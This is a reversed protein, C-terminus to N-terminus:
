WKIQLPTKFLRFFGRLSNCLRRLLIVAIIILLLESKDSSISMLLLLFIISIFFYIDILTKLRLRISNRFDSISVFFDNFKYVDFKFMLYTKLIFIILFYFYVPVLFIILCLLLFIFLAESYIQYANNINAYLKLNDKPKQYKIIKFKDKYLNNYKIEVRNVLLFIFYILIAISILYLSITNISKGDMYMLLFNPINESYNILIVKVPILFALLETFKSIVSLLSSILIFKFNDKFIIL